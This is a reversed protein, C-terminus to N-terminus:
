PMLIRALEMLIAAGSEKVFFHGGPVEILRFASTTHAAWGALDTAKVTADTRGGFALVPCTLPATTTPEYSEILQFDARLMPLMLELLERHRLVEAPIGGYRKDIADLFPDDPLDAINKASDRRHPPLSGAIALLTPLHDRERLARALEFAILGGMSHGFLAFPRDLWGDLSPILDAILVELRNFPREALRRERGPLMVPCLQCGSPVHTRWTAYTSASGGAHPFCFIRAQATPDPSINFYASNAM